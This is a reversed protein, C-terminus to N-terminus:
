YLYLFIDLTTLDKSMKGGSCCSHTWSSLHKPCKKSYIYFYTRLLKFKPCKGVPVALIHGFHSTSQVSKPIFIFIHGFYSSSQVNKRWFLLFIDLILTAKSTSTTNCLFETIMCEGAFYCSALETVYEMPM